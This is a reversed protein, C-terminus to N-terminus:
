RIQPRANGAFSGGLYQARAAPLLSQACEQAHTDMQELRREHRVCDLSPLNRGLRDGHHAPKSRRGVEGLFDACQEVFEVGAECALATQVDDKIGGEIDRALKLDLAAYLHFAATVRRRGGPCDRRRDIQARVILHARSVFRDMLPDTLVPALECAWGPLNVTVPAVIWSLKSGINEIQQCCLWFWLAAVSTFRPKPWCRRVPWYRSQYGKPLGSRGSTTTIKGTGSPVLFGIDAIAKM